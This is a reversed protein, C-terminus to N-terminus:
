SSFAVTNDNNFAQVKWVTSVSRQATLGSADLQLVFGGIGSSVVYDLTESGTQDETWSLSDGDQVALSGGQSSLLYRKEIAYGREDLSGLVTLLANGDDPLYINQLTVTGSAIDRKDSGAIIGGNFNADNALQLLGNEDFAWNKSKRAVTVPLVQGFNGQTSPPFQICRAVNEALMACIMTLKDLAQEHTDAPFADNEIYNVIQTIPVLRTITIRQGAVGGVMTISGGAENGEGTVTYDTNLVLISETTDNVSDLSTVLLHSEELFYLPVSLTQGSGTLTYPGAKNTTM